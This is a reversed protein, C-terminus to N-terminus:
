EWEDFTWHLQAGMLNWEMTQGPATYTIALSPWSATASADISQFWIWDADGTGEPGQLLLDLQNFRNKLADDVLGVMSSFEVATNASMLWSDKLATSWEGGAAWTSSGDYTNWTVGSSEVSAQTLRYVRYISGEDPSDGFPRHLTLSADSVYAGSPIGSLDFRLWPREAIDLLVRNNGFILLTATGYNTTKAAESLYADASPTLTVTKPM